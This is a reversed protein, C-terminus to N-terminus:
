EVELLKAQIFQGECIVGVVNQCESVDVDTTVCHSLTEDSSSCKIIKSLIPSNGRGFNSTVSFATSGYYLLFM